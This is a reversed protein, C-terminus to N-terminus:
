QIEVLQSVLKSSAKKVTIRRAIFNGKGGALDDYIEWDFYHTDGILISGVPELLIGKFIISKKPEDDIMVYTAVLM